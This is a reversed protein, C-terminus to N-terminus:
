EEPALRASKAQEKMTAYAADRAEPALSNLYLKADKYTVFSQGDAIIPVTRGNFIRRLLRNQARTLGADDEKTVTM